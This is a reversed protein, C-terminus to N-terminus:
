RTMPYERSLRRYALCDRLLRIPGLARHGRRRNQAGIKFLITFQEFLTKYADRLRADRDWIHTSEAGAGNIEVIQFFEGARFSTEDRFRIDFRGFYFEPLARAIEDIRAELAPTLLDQGDRFVAGGAHSGSFVLPYSAGTPLVEDLREAHRPFYIHTLLRARPDGEILQALTQNGDGTVAPFLKRTVSFIHGQEEDPMRYYLLGAEEEYPVRAQLQLEHNLPFNKLYSALETSSGVPQVGNGRQGKDPKAVIPYDIDAERMAAEARNLEDADEHLHRAHPAFYTRHSAPVLDLTDNKSEFILGGAYITPNAATPLTFSRFRLALWAYWISVPFYFLAPPWFEFFSVPPPELTDPTSETALKKRALRQALVIIVLLGIAAPWRFRGLLPFVQEGFVISAGLLLLTWLLTAGITFGLFPLPAARFLGAGVYTPLRMGPVFRSLLVALLLNRDFFRRAKELQAKNLLGWRITQPGLFRGMAYLGMDGLAIGFWLAFFATPFSLAGEAVLLGCGITTPDELVFTSLIILVGQLWPSSVAGERVLTFLSDM